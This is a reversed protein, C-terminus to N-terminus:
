CVPAGRFHYQVTVTGVNSVTVLYTYSADANRQVGQTTYRIEADPTICQVGVMEVGPYQPWWLWWRQTEGPALTNTGYTWGLAVGRFHYQVTMATPNSVTVFYTTSGDANMQMGPADTDVEAGPTLTQVGIVEFGPYGPWWLWWRQAKGPALTNTGYTWSL